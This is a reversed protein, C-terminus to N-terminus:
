NSDLLGTSLEALNLDGILGNLKLFAV